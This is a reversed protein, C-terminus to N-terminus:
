SSVSLLVAGLWRKVMAMKNRDGRHDSPTKSFFFKKEQGNIEVTAQYHGGGTVVVSNCALGADSIQKAIERIRRASV